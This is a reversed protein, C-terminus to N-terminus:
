AENLVLKQIIKRLDGGRNMEMECIKNFSNYVIKDKLNLVHFM